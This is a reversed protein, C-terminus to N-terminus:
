ASVGEGATPVGAGLLTQIYIRTSATIEGRTALRELYSALQMTAGREYMRDIRSHMAETIVEQEVLTHLAALIESLDELHSSVVTGHTLFLALSLAVCTLRYRLDNM